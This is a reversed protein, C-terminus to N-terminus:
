LRLVSCTSVSCAAADNILDIGKSSEASRGCRVSGSDLRIARACCLEPQRCLSASHKEAPTRQLKRLPYVNDYTKHVLELFYQEIHTHQWAGLNGLLIPSTNYTCVAMLISILLCPGTVPLRHLLWSTCYVLKYLVYESGLEIWVSHPLNLCSFLSPIM